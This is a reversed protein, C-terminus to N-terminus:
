IEQKCSAAVDIIFFNRASQSKIETIFFSSGFIVIKKKAEILVNIYNLPVM